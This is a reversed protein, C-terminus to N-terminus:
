EHDSVASPLVRYYFSAAHDYGSPGGSRHHPGDSAMYITLTSRIGVDADTVEWPLDVDRGVVLDSREGKPTLMWWRLSRGQPDTGYCRYVLTQGPHLTTGTSLTMGDAEQVANETTNGLSDTVSEIRAFYEGSPDQSSVYITVRNRIEGAIGSLLDQEFPLLERSHAVANRLAEFRDLLVTIERKVGLAPALDEWYRTVLRTLQTFEAYAILNTPVSAAGRAARRKIEIQRKDELATFAEAEFVQGIWCDGFKRALVVTLLERLARECTALAQAPLLTPM